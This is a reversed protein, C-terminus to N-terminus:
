NTDHLPFHQVCERLPIETCYNHEIASRSLSNRIDYLLIRTYHNINGTQGEFLVDTILKEAIPVIEKALKRLKNAVNRGM